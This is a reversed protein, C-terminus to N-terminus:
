TEYILLDNLLEQRIKIVDAQTPTIKVGRQLLNLVRKAKQDIIKRDNDKILILPQGAFTYPRLVYKDTIPLMDQILFANEKGNSLKCIHLGDCPKNHAQKDQMINKYKGVRRSMPIFWYLGNIEDNFCYYHPRCQEKNGKLNPDNFRTFYEDKIIYFVYKRMKVRGKFIIAEGM